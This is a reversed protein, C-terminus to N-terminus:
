GINKSSLLDAISLKSFPTVLKVGLVSGCAGCAKGIKPYMEVSTRRGIFIMLTNAMFKMELGGGLNFVSHPISMMGEFEFLARITTM